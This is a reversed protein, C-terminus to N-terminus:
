TMDRRNTLIVTIVVFVMAYGGLLLGASWGDLTTLVGPAAAPISLSEAVSGALSGAATGPLLQVLADVADLLNAVGRLLNELVLAWVLGLGVALAPGRTLTGVFVGAAAWMTLILLAAGVGQALETVGPWALSQSEAVAIMTAAAMDVAFTVVVLGIVLIAVATMTAGIVTSRSPGLALVTKWTGWGYGSGVALAGFIMVIAGGFLPLGQVLTVPVASPMMQDLLAGGTDAAPGVQTGEGRYALYNLLYGFTLSQAVWVGLLVWSVPWRTLRRLEARVARIM